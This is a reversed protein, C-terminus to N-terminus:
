SLAGGSLHKPKDSSAVPAAREREKQKGDMVSKGIGEARGGANIIAANTRDTSQSDGTVEQGGNIWRLGREFLEHPLAFVRIVFSYAFFAGVLASAVIILPSIWGSQIVGAVYDFAWQVLVGIPRLALIVAFFGAVRLVPGIFLGIMLMYGQRTHETGWGEKEATGHAAMWFPSVLLCEIFFLMWSIVGAFWMFLPIAPLVVALVLGVFMLSYILHQFFAAAESVISAATESGMVTGAGAVSAGSGLLPGIIPTSSAANSLSSALFKAASSLAIAVAKAETIMWWAAEAAAGIVSGSYQLRVIMDDNSDGLVLSKILSQATTIFISKIGDGTGDAGSNAVSVIMVNSFDSPPTDKESASKLMGRIRKSIEVFREDNAYHKDTQPYSYRPVLSKAFFNIQEQSKNIQWFLTGLAPWGNNVIEDKWNAGANNSINDNVTTAIITASSRNFNNALKIHRQAASEVFKGVQYYDAEYSDQAEIGNEQLDRLSSQDVLIMSAIAAAEPQNSDILERFKDRIIEPAIVKLDRSDPILSDDALSISLKGCYGIRQDHKEPNDGEEQMDYSYHVERVGSENVVRFRPVVAERNTQSNIYQRCAESTIWGSIMSKSDKLPAPLYAGNEYLFDLGEAMVYNAFKNGKNAGEIVLMQLTSYGGSLPVLLIVATTIRIPMWFSSIVQGGPSGKNGTQIIFTLAGIAALWAMVVLSIFNIARSVTGLLNKDQTSGFGGTTIFNIIQKGFDSRSQSIEFQEVGTQLETAYATSSIFVVLIALFLSPAHRKFYLMEDFRQSTNPPLTLGPM